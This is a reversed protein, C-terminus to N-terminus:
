RILIALGLLVPLLFSSYAVLYAYLRLSEEKYLRSGVLISLVSSFSSLTPLIILGSSPEFLVQGVQFATQQSTIFGYVIFLALDLFVGGILPLYFSLNARITRVPSELNISKRELPTISGLYVAEQVGKQFTQADAPSLFLVERTTGILFADQRRTAFFLVDGLESTFLKGSFIGLRSLGPTPITYGMQDYPRIWEIEQIPVVMKQFGWQITLGERNIGYYSHSIQFLYFLFIFLPLLSVVGSIYVLIRFGANALTSGIIFSGTSIGALFFCLVLLNLVTKRKPLQFNQEGNM